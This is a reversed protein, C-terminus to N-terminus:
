PLTIRARYAGPTVGYVRRFVLNLHAQSALGVALAVEGISRDGRDLLVRARGARRRLVYQHPSVGTTRRVERTLHSPSLGAAAALAFLSLEEDLHAEVYDAFRALEGATRGAARALLRDGLIRQRVLEYVLATALRVAV